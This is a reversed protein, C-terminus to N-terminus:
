IGLVAVRRTHEVCTVAPTRIFTNYTGANSFSKTINKESSILYVRVLVIYYRGCWTTHIKKKKKKFRLGRAACQIANPRCREQNYPINHETKKRGTYTFSADSQKNFKNNTTCAGTENAYRSLNRVTKLYYCSFLHLNVGTIRDPQAARAWDSRVPRPPPSSSFIIHPAPRGTTCDSAATGPM